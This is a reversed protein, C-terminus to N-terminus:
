GVRGKGVGMDVFRNEIDTDRNRSPLSTEDYGTSGKKWM